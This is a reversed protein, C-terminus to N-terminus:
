FVFTTFTGGYWPVKTYIIQQGMYQTAVMNIYIYLIRFKNQLQIPFASKVMTCFLPLVMTSKQLHDTPEYGLYTLISLCTNEMTGSYLIGKTSHTPTIAVVNAIYLWAMVLFSPTLQEIMGWFCMVGRKYTIQQDMQVFSANKCGCKRIYVCSLWIIKLVFLQLRFIM